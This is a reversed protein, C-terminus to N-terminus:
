AHISDRMHGPHRGPTPGPASNRITPTHAYLGPSPGTFIGIAALTRMLRVLLAVDIGCCRALDTATPPGKGFHEFLRMRLAARLVGHAVPAKGPHMLQSEPTELGTLLKRTAALLQSHLTDSAPTSQGTGSRVFNEFSDKLRILTGLTKRKM